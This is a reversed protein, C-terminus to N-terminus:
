VIGRWDPYYNVVYMMGCCYIGSVVKKDELIKYENAHYKKIKFKVL